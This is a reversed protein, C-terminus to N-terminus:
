ADNQRAFEFLWDKPMHQTINTAYFVKSITQDPGILFDAPLTRTDADIKGPMFGSFFAKMSRPHIFSMLMGPLSYEVGYRDYVERDPDSLIPFPVSRSSYQDAVREPKSMCVAVIALGLEDLTQFDKTLEHIHLNCMPCAAYRIFTLFLRRGRYDSLRCRGGNIDLLDFEPAQDGPKLRM